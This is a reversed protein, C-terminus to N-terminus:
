KSKWKLDSHIISNMVHAITKYRFIISMNGFMVLLSILLFYIHFIYRKVNMCDEPQFLNVALRGLLYLSWSTFLATQFISNLIKLKSYGYTLSKTKLNWGLPVLKLFDIVNCIHNVAALLEKTSM